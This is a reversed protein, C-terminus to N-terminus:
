SKRLALEVGVLPLVRAPKAPPDGPPEPSRVPHLFDRRLTSKEVAILVGPPLTRVGPILMPTALKRIEPPAEGSNSPSCRHRPRPNLLWHQEAKAETM